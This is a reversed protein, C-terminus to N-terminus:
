YLINYFLHIYMCLAIFVNKQLRFEPLLQGYCLYPIGFYKKIIWIIKNIGMSKSKEDLMQQIETDEPVGKLTQQSIQSALNPVISMELLRGVIPILKIPLELKNDIEGFKEFPVCESAITDKAM